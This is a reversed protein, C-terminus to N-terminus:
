KIRLAPLSCYLSAKIPGPGAEFSITVEVTWVEAQVRPAVPFSLVQWKYYFLSLGGATLLLAIIWVRYARGGKM